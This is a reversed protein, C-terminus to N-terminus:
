RSSGCTIAEMDSGCYLCKWCESLVTDSLSMSSSANQQNDGDMTLQLRKVGCNICCQYLPSTIVKLTVACRDFAHGTSCVCIAGISFPIWNDCAPCKQKPRIDVNMVNNGNLASDVIGVEISLNDLAPSSPRHQQLKDYATKVTQLLDSSPLPLVEYLVRDCWLVMQSIDDDSLSKWFQDDRENCYSLISQFFSCIIYSRSKMDMELLFARTNDQLKYNKLENNFYFIIRSAIANTPSFVRRCISSHAWRSNDDNPKEMLDNLQHLCAMLSENEEEDLIFELQEHLISQVPYTFFFDPDHIYRELDKLLKQNANVGNIKPHILFTISTSDRSEGYTHIDVVPKITYMIASYLGNPTSDVGWVQPIMDLNNLLDEDENKSVDEVWQQKFKSQLKKTMGVSLHDVLELNGNQYSLVLGDGEYTFLRIYHGENGFYGGSVGVATRPVTYDMWDGELVLKKDEQVKLVASYVNVYKAILIKISDGSEDWLKIMSISGSNEEFWTSITDTEVSRISSPDYIVKVSTLTVTGNTSTSLLYGIYYNDYKRWKSWRMLNVFSSHPKFTTQHQIGCVVSYSWLSVEGAQNSIAMLAPNPMLPDTVIIPSWVAYLSHFQHIQELNEFTGTDSDQLTDSMLLPTMDTHLSWNSTNKGLEFLLVRHKTTVVTLLCGYIRSLGTPSWSTCRYMEPISYSPDLPKELVRSEDFDASEPLLDNIITNVKYNGYDSSLGAIIPTILHIYTDTCAAIIGDESWTIADVGFPKGSITIGLQTEM